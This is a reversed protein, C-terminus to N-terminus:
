DDGWLNFDFYARPWELWPEWDRGLIKCIMRVDNKVRLDQWWVKTFSMVALYHVYIALPVLEHNKLKQIFEDSCVFPWTMIYRILGAGLEVFETDNFTILQELVRIPRECMYTLERQNLETARKDILNSLYLLSREGVPLFHIHPNWHLSTHGENMNDSEIVVAKIGLLLPLWRDLSVARNNSYEGVEVYAFADVSVLAGAIILAELMTPTKETVDSVINNRFSEIARHRYYVAINEYSIDNRLYQLHTASLALISYMMFDFECAMAPVEHTWMYVSRPNFNNSLSKSTNLIYNTLLALQQTAIANGFPQGLVTHPSPIATLNPAEGNANRPAGTNSAADFAPPTSFTTASSRASLGAAFSSNPTVGGAFFRTALGPLVGPVPISIPIQPPRQYQPPPANSTSSLSSSPLSTDATTAAATAAASTAQSSIFQNHMHSPVPSAHVIVPSSTVSSRGSAGGGAGAGGGRSGPTGGSAFSCTVNHRVCNRCQPRTEDCKIKRRKCILCGNRSKVHSRRGISSSAQNLLNEIAAAQRARAADGGPNLNENNSSSSSGGQSSESPQHHLHQSYLDKSDPPKSDIDNDNSNGDLSEDDESTEPESQSGNGDELVVRKRKARNDKMATPNPAPVVPARTDSLVSAPKSLPNNAATFGNEPTVPM